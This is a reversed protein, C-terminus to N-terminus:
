SGLWPHRAAVLARRGVMATLRLGPNPLDDFAGAYLRVDGRKERVTHRAQCNRDDLAAFTRMIMDTHQPPHDAALPPPFRGSVIALVAVEELKAAKM